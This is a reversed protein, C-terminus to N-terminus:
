GVFGERRADSYFPVSPHAMRRVDLEAVVARRKRFGFLTSSLIARM